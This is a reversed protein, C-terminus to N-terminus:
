RRDALHHLERNFEAEQELAPSRTVPSGYHAVIQSFTFAREKRATGPSDAFRDNGRQASFACRDEGCCPRPGRMKTLEDSCIHRGGLAAGGNGFGDTIVKATDIDDCMDHATRRRRRSAECHEIVIFPVSRQVLVKQRRNTQISGKQGLHDLLAGTDYDV